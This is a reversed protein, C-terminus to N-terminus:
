NDRTLTSLHKSLFEKLRELRYKHNCIHQHNHNLINQASEYVQRHDAKSLKKIQEFAMSWRKIDNPEQDYSEDIIGHFTQYGMSHLRSLLNQPGFMVFIKKEFLPKATKETFFNSHSGQTETVISYWSNQYIKFPISDSVGIGNALGYLRNTSNERDHNTIKPDDYDVLEPSTYNISGNISVFSQNLLDSEILKDFVFTRHPKKEGSKGLLADFIKLKHGDGSWDQYKCVDVIRSLFHGLQDFVLNNPYQTLQYTGNAVCILKNNNFKKVTKEYYSEWPGNILEGTYLIILDAWSLDELSQDFDEEWLWWDKIVVKKRYDKKIINPDSDTIIDANELLKFGIRDALDLEYMYDPNWIVIDKTDATM